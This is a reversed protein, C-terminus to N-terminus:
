EGLAVISDGSINDIVAGYALLTAASDTHVKMTFNGLTAANVGPFLNTFAYQLQSRAPVSVMANAVVAGTGSVLQVSASIAADGSNVFGLNTRYATSSKLGTVVSDRSFASLVAPTVSQGSTGGDTVRTTYTRASILAGSGSWSVEIAGTATGGVLWFVADSILHTRKPGITIVKSPAARNDVGGRLMRVSVSVSSTSPNFFALDTRWFTGNVGETRGAAPILVRSGDYPQSAEVYSPDQTRNDILSAYATVADSSSAAIRISMGSKSQGTLVPFLNTIGLQQFSGAPLSMTPSALVVGSADYLTLTANQQSGAKNVVGVNTRFSASNELGVLYLTAPLVDDVAPVFQGYTGTTSTTFTRSSLKVNPLGLPNSAEVAIAGGVNTVGFLDRLANAYTITLGGGLSITREKPAIGPPPLYRFTVTAANTAANHVSLETRWYTQNAGALEASTAILWRKSRGASVISISKSRTSQSSSNRATLTVTYTGALAYAHSPNKSTSTSGDGFNWSWSTPSGTSLDTFQVSQQTAAPNPSMGFDAAVPSTGGSAAAVSISKTTSSEGASNRVTLRATFTGASAYIHSPNTLTSTAGDGFSWTRSTITGTSRDTFAFNTVGATGSTPSVSFSATPAATAAPTTISATNSAASEGASNRATVRFQYGTSYSLSGTTYSTVNAGVDAIRSFSGGSTSMYISQSTEDTANDRWNLRVQTGTAMSATLSSPAAPVTPAPEVGSPYLWRAATQDDTRLSPGRGTVMSYMLATGDSSHGYGLTHGFEHALIEALESSSIGSSPSVGDQITLNGELIDYASYTKATHTGDADFPATWSRARGVNNFGGRGVVGSGSWSGSIENRPDEFMVENIGNPSDLGGPSSGSAGSYVYNINASAYGSWSSMATRLETVGGDTYGRQAGTSKWSPSGSDFGFWRYITPEAIMTFAASISLPFEPSEIFYDIAAGRGQLRENIFLEFLEARRQRKTVPAEEFDSTLLHTGDARDDRFWIREAATTFRETLKGVFLDVTQYDGRVTPHLFLLTREGPKYEASGFVVSVREEIKGGIERIVVNAPATGKLVAEVSVHTETWIGGNREIPFSQTVVGSVIVPTKDILQEDTPMVITTAGAAAAAFLCILFLCTNRYVQTITM